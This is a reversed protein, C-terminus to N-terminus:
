AVPRYTPQVSASLDISAPHKVPLATIMRTYITGIVKQMVVTQCPRPPVPMAPARQISIRLGYEQEIKQQRRHGTSITRADKDTNIYKADLSFNETLNVGYNFKYKRENFSGLQLGANGWYKRNEYNKTIINIVGSTANGGYMIAGGAPVVEIKEIQEVPIFDLDFSRNDIGNQPIGDVLVVLHKNGMSPVQGRMSLNGGSFSLGPVNVLAEEINKYGRKEIEKNTIVTVNKATEIVPTEEYRESTITSENLKVAFEEKKEVENAYLSSSLFLALIGIKKYM